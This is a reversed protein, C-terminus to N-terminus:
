GADWCRSVSRSRIAQIAPPLAYSRMLDVQSPLPEDKFLHGGRTAQIHPHLQAVASVSEHLGFM